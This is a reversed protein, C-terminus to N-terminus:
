TIRLLCAESRDVKSPLGMAAFCFRIENRFCLQDNQGGV